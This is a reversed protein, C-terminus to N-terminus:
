VDGEGQPVTRAARGSRPARACPPGEVRCNWDRARLRGHSAEVTVRALIRNAPIACNAIAPIAILRMAQEPEGDACSASPMVKIAADVGGSATMCANIVPVRVVV